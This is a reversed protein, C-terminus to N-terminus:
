NGEITKKEIQILDKSCKGMGMPHSCATGDGENLRQKKNRIQEKVEYHTEDIKRMADYTINKKPQYIFEEVDVDEKVDKLHVYLRNYSKEFDIMQKRKKKFEYELINSHKELIDM